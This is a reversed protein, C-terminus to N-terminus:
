VECTVSCCEPALVYSNSRSQAPHSDAVLPVYCEM